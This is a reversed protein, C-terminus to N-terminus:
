GEVPCGSESIEQTCGAKRMWFKKEAFQLVLKKTCHDSDNYFSFPEIIFRYTQAEEKYYGKFIVPGRVCIEGRPNPKDEATYNMEPVDM